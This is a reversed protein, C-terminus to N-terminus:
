SRTDTTHSLRRDAFLNGPEKADVEEIKIVLYFPEELGADLSKLLSENRNARETFFAFFSLHWLDSGRVQRGLPGAVLHGM